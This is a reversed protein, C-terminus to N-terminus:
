LTLNTAPLPATSELPKRKPLFDPQNQENEKSLFRPLNQHFMKLAVEVKNRM